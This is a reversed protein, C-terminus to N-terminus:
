RTQPAFAGCGFDRDLHELLQNPLSAKPWQSRSTKLLRCADIQNGRGNEILAMIYLNYYERNQRNENNSIQRVQDIHYIAKEFRNERLEPDQTEWVAYIYALNAHPRIMMSPRQLIEEIEIARELTLIATEYQGVFSQITSLTAFSDSLDYLFKYNEQADILAELEEIIHLYDEPNDAILSSSDSNYQRLHQLKLRGYKARLRLDILPAIRESAAIEALQKESNLFDTETGESNANGNPGYLGNIFAFEIDIALLIRVPSYQIQNAADRGRRLLDRAQVIDGRKRLIIALQLLAEPDTNIALIKRYAKEAEPSNRNVALAAIQHLLNIKERNNMTSEAADYETTLKLLAGEFSNTKNLAAFVNEIPYPTQKLHYLTAAVASPNIETTRNNLVVWSIGAFMLSSLGFIILRSRRQAAIKFSAWWKALNNAENGHIDFAVMQQKINKLPVRRRFRKRPEKTSLSDILNKSALISGAQASQQLRSAINVGHGLLNGDEQVYVDGTHLGIRVKTNALSKLESDASVKKLIERACAMTQAASSFELYFADGVENFLRGEFKESADIVLTRMRRAVAVAIKENEESLKSFDCIDLALISALRRTGVDQSLEIGDM